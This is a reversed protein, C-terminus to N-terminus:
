TLDSEPFREWFLSEVFGYDKKEIWKKFETHLADVLEQDYERCAAQIVNESFDDILQETMVDKKENPYM